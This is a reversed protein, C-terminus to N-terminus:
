GIMDGLSNFNVFGAADFEAVACAHRAQWDRVARGGLQMFQQLDSKLELEILMSTYHTRTTDAAVALPARAAQAADFLRQVLDLPLHPVDCPAVLLWRRDTTDLAALVGALPGAFDPVSDAVVPVGYAAYTERNRNASILTTSVQPRLADLVWEVLPRGQYHVLGKDAGGM